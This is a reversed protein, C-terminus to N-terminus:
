SGRVRLCAVLRPLALFNVEKGGYTILSLLVFSSVFLLILLVLCKGQDNVYDKLQRQPTRWSHVEPGM